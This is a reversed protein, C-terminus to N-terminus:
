SESTGTGLGASAQVTSADYEGSVLMEIERSAQQVFEDKNRARTYAALSEDTLADFFSAFAKSIDTGLELVAGLVMWKTGSGKIRPFTARSPEDEDGDDLDEEDEWM